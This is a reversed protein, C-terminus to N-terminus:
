TGLKRPGFLTWRWRRFLRQISERIEKTRVGYIVPNIAGPFLLYMVSLLNHVDQSASKALRFVISSSLCSSYGIFLVILHTSCTHFAKHRFSGSAMKLATLIIKSYSLALFVLDFVITFSRVAMGVVRNRSTDGCSLKMLAMHECAFHEIVNSRCFRVQSALIVVPSVISVSRVLAAAALLGLLKGTLIDAYHLPHCIAVYRDLAMMLLIGTDLMIALYLFFMQVLCGTLSISSIGFLFSLLMQPLVTTSGFVNVALLLAILLYMPSHLCSEAKVTYILLSNALIIMLYICFFPIALLYRSKQFGPFALLLFERYSTNASTNQVLESPGGFESM